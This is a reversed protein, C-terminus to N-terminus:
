RLAKPIVFKNASHTESFSVVKVDVLGAAKGAAMVDTDKIGGKGKPTVTWIAGDRKMYRVLEVLRELGDLSEAGLFIADAGKVVRGNSVSAARARLEALFGADKVNLLVVRHEAKVGLKDIRGKPNKIKDAWTKAAADGIAFAATGGPHTVRLQGGKVELATIDKFAIKLRLDPSRFIIQSTELLAKGATTKRGVRVTTQIEAGM